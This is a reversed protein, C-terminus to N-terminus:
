IEDRSPYPPSGGRQADTSSENKEIIHALKADDILDEGHLDLTNVPAISRVLQDIAFESDFFGPLNDM